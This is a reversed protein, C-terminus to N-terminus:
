TGGACTAVNECIVILQGNYKQGLPPKGNSSVFTTPLQVAVM